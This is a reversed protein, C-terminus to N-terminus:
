APSTISSHWVSMQKGEIDAVARLNVASSVLYAAKKINKIEEDDKIAM